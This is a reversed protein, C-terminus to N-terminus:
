QEGSGTDRVDDQNLSQAAPARPNGQDPGGLLIQTMFDNQSSYKKSVDTGKIFLHVENHGISQSKEKLKVGFMGHHIGHGTNKAPTTMNAGYGLYIPPDDKTLHYYASFAKYTAEHQGYNALADEISDEGVAKYIMQHYVNPGIWPEILKPDIATQAGRVAAGQIRSSERKVLDESDPDSFDDLCAILVSSCGGASGGTLVFRDKDINWAEAKHRLFQIARVADHVPVPLPDTVSYRYNIAAVSVGKKLWDDADKPRRKNGQVWGGGHIFVHVPRPGDGRAQWFDLKTREHVDYAVDLYVAAQAPNPKKAQANQAWVTQLCSLALILGIIRTNM